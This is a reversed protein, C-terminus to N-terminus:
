QPTRRAVSRRRPALDSVGEGAQRPPPTQEPPAPKWPWVLGRQDCYRRWEPHPQDDGDYYSEPIDDVLQPIPTPDLSEEAEVALFQRLIRTLEAITAPLCTEATLGHAALLHQFRSDFRIQRGRMSPGHTTFVTQQYGTTSSGSLAAATFCNGVTTESVHFGLDPDIVIEVRGPADRAADARSQLFRLLCLLRAAYARPGSDKYTHYPNVILRAGAPLHRSLALREQRQLKWHFMSHRRRGYRINWIPDALDEAPIHFSSLGGLQRVLGPGGYPHDRDVLLDWAMEAYRVMLQTREEQFEAVEYRALAADSFQEILREFLSPDFKEVLVDRLKVLLRQRAAPDPPADGKPVAEPEVATRSVKVAHVEGIMEGPDVGIAVPLVPINMASAYGIEQQVWGREIAKNTLVPVFVHACGISTRIQDHFGRGYAFAQDWKVSLGCETLRDCVINALDFDHHSYCIFARPPSERAGASRSLGSTM